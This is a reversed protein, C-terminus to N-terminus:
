KLSLTLSVLLKKFLDDIFASLVTNCEIRRQTYNGLNCSLVFKNDTILMFTIISHHFIFFNMFVKLQKPSIFMVRKSMNVNVVISTCLTISKCPMYGSGGQFSNLKKKNRVIQIFLINLGSGLRNLKKM